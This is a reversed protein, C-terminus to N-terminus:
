LPLQSVDRELMKTDKASLAFLHKGRRTRTCAQARARAQMRTHLSAIRLSGSRSHFVVILTVKITELGLRRRSVLHCKLSFNRCTIKFLKRVSASPQAAAFQLHRRPPKPSPNPYRRCHHRQRPPFPPPSVPMHFRLWIFSTSITICHTIASLSLGTGGM